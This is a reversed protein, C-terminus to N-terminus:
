LTLFPACISIICDEVKQACWPSSNVSITIHNFRIGYQICICIYTYIHLYSYIYIFIYIYTIHTYTYM